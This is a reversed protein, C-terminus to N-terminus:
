GVGDYAAGFQWRMPGWYLATIELGEPPAVESVAGDQWLYLTGDQLYAVAQGSPACVFWTSVTHRASDLLDALVPLEAGDAALVQWAQSNSEAYIDWVLRLSESPSTASVMELRRGVEEINGTAPDGQYWVNQDTRVVVVDGIAGASMDTVWLPGTIPYWETEADPLRVVQQTGEAVDYLRLTEAFDSPDNTFVVIGLPGWNLLGPLGDASLGMQPVAGDLVRSTDSGLDYVVLRAGNLAPYDQETWALASGDSSWVPMSRKIGGSYGNATTTITTPQTAVDHRTGDGLNVLAIDWATTYYLGGPGGEPLAQLFPPTRLYALREGDPSLSGAYFGDAPLSKWEENIYQYLVRQRSENDHIGSILLPPYESASRVRGQTLGTCLMVVLSLLLIAKRM